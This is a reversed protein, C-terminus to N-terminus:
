PIPSAEDFSTRTPECLTQIQKASLARDFVAVQEILGNFTPDTPFQSHGLYNNRGIAQAPTISLDDRSVVRRGDIYMAAIQHDITVALMVWRGVPMAQPADLQFEGNRGDTTVAFRPRLTDGADVTLFMYRKTDQGFDFVRQWPGGGEWKVWAVLSFAEGVPPTRDEFARLVAGNDLRLGTRDDFREAAAHGVLKATLAPSMRNVFVSSRASDFRWCAVPGMSKLITATIRDLPSIRDADFWDEDERKDRLLGSDAVLTQGATLLRTQDGCQIEVRGESVRVATLGDATVHMAYATGLDIVRVGHPGEVTFGHAGQPVYADLTGGTLRGRNPGTMAFECPGTLDVVATSNFMLQARGATLQIPATLGEGLSHEADAFAADDSRDSLIAFSAPAAAHPAPLPSNPATPLFVFYLAAALAILAAIAAKVGFGSGQARFGKAYWVSRRRAPEADAHPSASSAQRLDMGVSDAKLSTSPLPTEGRLAQDASLQSLGAHVSAARLFREAHTMDAALWADLAIAQEDTLAADFWADIMMDITADNMICAGTAARHM